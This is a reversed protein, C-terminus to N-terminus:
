RGRGSRRRWGGAGPRRLRGAGRGRGAEAPARDAPQLSPRGKAQFIAAVARDNTADGGLGYVTETPFAVLLGERLLVAARRVGADDAPLMQTQDM